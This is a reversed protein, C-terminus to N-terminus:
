KNPLYFCGNIRKQWIKAGFGKFLYLGQTSADLPQNEPNHKEPEPNQGAPVNEGNGISPFYDMFSSNGGSEESTTNATKM